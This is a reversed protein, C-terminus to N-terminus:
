KGGKLSEMSWVIERSKQGIANRVEFVIEDGYNRFEISVNLEDVDIGLAKLITAMRSKSLTFLRVCLHLLAEEPTGGFGTISSVGPLGSEAAYKCFGIHDVVIQLAAMFSNIEDRPSNM